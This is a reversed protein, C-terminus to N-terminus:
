TFGGVPIIRSLMRRFNKLRKIRTPILPLRGKLLLFLATQVERFFGRLGDKFIFSPALDPEFSKGTKMIVKVFRKSFDPGILGKQYQNKWLSYRKLAYMMEAINIGRPCRVTCHYCSACYWFTNSSLVEDKLGACIMDIIKRPSHEMFEVAPCTASCTGCQICTNIPHGDTAYLLNAIETSFSPKVAM